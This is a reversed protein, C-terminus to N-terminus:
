GGSVPPIFAVTQGDALPTADRVFEENIAIRCSQLAGALEPHAAELLTRLQGASTGDPVDRTEERTGTREPLHAFYLITVKM